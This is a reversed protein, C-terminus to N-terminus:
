HGASGPNLRYVLFGGSRYDLEIGFGVAWLADLWDELMQEAPAVLYRAGGEDLALAGAALAQPDPYHVRRKDHWVGLYYGLEWGLWPDYIVTAVPKGQLHAALDLIGAQQARDGGLPLGARLSWLTTLLVVIGLTMLVRKGFRRRGFACTLRQAVLIVVLPLLPLLYRDYHNFPFFVHLALYGTVFGLYIKCSRKYIRTSWPLPGRLAGQELCHNAGGGENQPSPAPPHPNSGRCSDDRMLGEAVAAALLMLTVVPAGLLWAGLRAWELLRPLWDVPPAIWTEPANNVAGLVFVSTEPRSGDWVLLLILAGGFMTAFRYRAAKGIRRGALTLLILPLFFLAQQKCWFALGLALGAKGIHRGACTLLALLLFFLLSMDSFATAGSVLLYPSCAALLGTLLAASEDGSLRRALRMLAAVALIALMVNPVRGAFEGIVSDLQLVGADDATVGFAVMSLASLYISLPPKDLAGRLLWDGKVAAARAFTM